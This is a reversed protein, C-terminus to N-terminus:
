SKTAHVLVEADYGARHVAELLQEASIRQGDFDVLLHTKMDGERIAVIGELQRLERRITLSCSACSVGQVMLEATLAEGVKPNASPLTLEASAATEAASEASAGASPETKACAGILLLGAACAGWRLPKAGVSFPCRSPSLSRRSFAQAM